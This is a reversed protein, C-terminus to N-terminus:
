TGALNLRKQFHEELDKTRHKELVTQSFLVWREQLGRYADRWCACMFDGLKLPHKKKKM